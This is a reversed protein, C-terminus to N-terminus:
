RRIARSSSFLSIVVAVIFSVVQNRTMASTMASIALYLRGDAPQRHLRRPDRRQGPQRTIVTLVVPLDACARARRCGRHSSNGVIAQWPTIADHAATRDHRAATGGVVDRMGVRARPFLYLWPHWSFFAQLEGGAEFFGAVHVHFIGLM